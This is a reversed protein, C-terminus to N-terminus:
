PKARERAIWTRIYLPCSRLVIGDRECACLFRVVDEDVRLLDKLDLVLTGGSRDADILAALEGLHDAQLRGSVTLVAEGNGTYQIKLVPWQAGNRM